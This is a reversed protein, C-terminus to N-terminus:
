GEEVEYGLARFDAATMFVSGFPWPIEAIPENDKPYCKPCVWSLHCGEGWIITALRQAAEGCDPCFVLVDQERMEQLEREHLAKNCADRLAEIETRAFYGIIRGNYGTPPPTAFVVPKAVYECGDLSASARLEYRGEEDNYRVDFVVDAPWLSGQENENSM